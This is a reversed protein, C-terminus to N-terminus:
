LSIPASLVTVHCPCYQPISIYIYIYIYIHCPCLETPHVHCLCYPPVSTVHVTSHSQYKRLHLDTPHIVPAVNHCPHIAPNIGHSQFSHLPLVTPHIPCLCHVSIPHIRVPPSPYSLPFVCGSCLFSGIPRNEGVACGSPIGSFLAIVCPCLREGGRGIVATIGVVVAPSVTFLLLSLGSPPFQKFILYIDEWLLVWM